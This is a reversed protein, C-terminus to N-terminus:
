LAKLVDAGVVWFSEGEPIFRVEKNEFLMIQNPM